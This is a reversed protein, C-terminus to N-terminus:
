SLDLNCHVEGETGLADNHTIMKGARDNRAVSPLMDIEDNGKKPTLEVSSHYTLHPTLTSSSEKSTDQPLENLDTPMRM